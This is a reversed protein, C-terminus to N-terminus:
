RPLAQWNLAFNMNSATNGAVSPSPVALAVPAVAGRLATRNMATVPHLASAVQPTTARTRAPSQPRSVAYSAAPSFRTSSETGFGPLTVTGSWGVPSPAALGASTAPARVEIRIPVGVPVSSVSYFCAYRQGPVPGGTVPQSQGVQVTNTVNFQSVDNFSNPTVARVSMAACIGAPNPQGNPAAFYIGGSIRGPGTTAVEYTKGVLQLLLQGNAFRADIRTYGADKAPAFAADVLALSNSVQSKLDVQQKKVADEVESRISPQFALAVDALFNRSTFHVNALSATAAPINLGMNQIAATVDAVIDFDITFEPNDPGYEVATSAGGTLVGLVVTGADASPKSTIIDISNGPVVYRLKVLDQGLHSPDLWLSGTAAFNCTVKLVSIGNPLLGPKTAYKKVMDCIPDTQAAWAKDISFKIVNANDYVTKFTRSPWQEGQVTLGGGYPQYASAPISLALSTLLAAFAVAPRVVNHRRM